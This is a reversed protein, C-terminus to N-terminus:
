LRVRSSSYPSRRRHRALPCVSRNNDSKRCNSCPIKMGIMPGDRPLRVIRQDRGRTGDVAVDVRDGRLEHGGRQGAADRREDGGAELLGGPRHLPHERRHGFPRDVDPELGEARARQKEAEARQQELTELTAELRVGYVRSVGAQLLVEVLQEAVTSM